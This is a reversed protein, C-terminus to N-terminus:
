TYAFYNFLGISCVTTSYSFENKSKLSRAQFAFGQSNAKFLAIGHISHMDHDDIKKVFKLSTSCM